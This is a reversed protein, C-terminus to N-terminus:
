ICTFHLKDDRKRSSNVSNQKQNLTNHVLWFTKSTRIRTKNLKTKYLNHLLSILNKQLCRDFDESTLHKGFPLTVKVIAEM